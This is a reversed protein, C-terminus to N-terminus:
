SRRMVAKYSCRTPPPPYGVSTTAPRDVILEVAQEILRRLRVLRHQNGSRAGVGHQNGFFVPVGNLLGEVQKRHGPIRSDM